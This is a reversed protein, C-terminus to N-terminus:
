PTPATAVERLGPRQGVGTTPSGHPIRRSMGADGEGRGRGEGGQGGDRGGRQDRGLGGGRLCGDGAGADATGEVDADHGTQADLDLAHQLVTLPDLDGALREARRDGAVEAGVGGPVLQDRAAVHGLRHNLRSRDVAGAQRDM